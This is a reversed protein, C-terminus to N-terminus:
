DADAADAVARVRPRRRAAARGPAVAAGGPHVRGAVAGNTVLADLRIPSLRDLRSRWELWNAESWLDTLTPTRTM